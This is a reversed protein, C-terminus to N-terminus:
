YFDNYQNYDEYNEEYTDIFQRRIERLAEIMSGCVGVTRRLVFISIEVAIIKDILNAQNYKIDSDEADEVDYYMVLTTDQKQFYEKATLM